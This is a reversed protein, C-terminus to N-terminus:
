DTCVPVLQKKLSYDSAYFMKKYRVGRSTISATDTPLLHMKITHEPLVRLQGKMYKVGYEWIQAPIKEIEESIMMEDMVYESLVHHNNHFLVCKIVIRTFEEITLNAKLRYDEDGREISNKGNKVVGDAFPKVKINLQAFAQEIVGKNDARYPPSNLISMGLGLIADEIQKGNLEGRDAFVKQPVCAVNWEDEELTIGFQKCYDSKPLMSNALAVMTGTYSNFSEFTVNIWVIMRSYVDIVCILTPRGVILNRDVSSVLYIDFQTSDIQWLTGPGM